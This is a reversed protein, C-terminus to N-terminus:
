DPYKPRLDISNEATARYRKRGHNLNAMQCEEVDGNSAPRPVMTLRNLGYIPEDTRTTHEKPNTLSENDPQDSMDSKSEDMNVQSNPSYDKLVKQAHSRV